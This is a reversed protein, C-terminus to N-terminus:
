LSSRFAELGNRLLTALLIINIRRYSFFVECSVWLTLNALHNRRVLNVVASAPPSLTEIFRLKEKRYALRTM